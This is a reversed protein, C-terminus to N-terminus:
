NRIDAPIENWLIISTHHFSCDLVSSHSPPLSLPKVKGRIPRRPLNRQYKCHLYAPIGSNLIKFLLTAAFYNRRDRITLWGLSRRYHSIHESRRIGYIYRIGSNIVRQLKLDLEGSIDIFVLSCNDVLTFLLTEILHKRM